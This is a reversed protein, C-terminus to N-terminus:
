SLEVRGHRGELVVTLAARDGARVPLEAGLAALASRVSDPDPHTAEFSVLPTTPLGRTTPHQTDGWDILFPVLGDGVALNPLALRWRLVEGDPSGRSMSQPQGPDHGRSRATAVQRDIDVCRIAWTVLRTNQLRDVGFPRPQEPAPLDPDPGLIELYGGGGLGVLHNATGLGLHRGGPVPRVGTLDAFRTVAANLDPTALVIHDLM